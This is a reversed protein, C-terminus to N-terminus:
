APHKGIRFHGRAKSVWVSPLSHSLLRTRTTSALTMGVNGAFFWERVIIALEARIAASTNRHSRQNNSCGAKDARIEDLVCQHGPVVNNTDCSGPMNTSIRSTDMTPSQTRWQGALCYTTDRACNMESM